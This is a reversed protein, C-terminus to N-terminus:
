YTYLGIVPHILLVQEVSRHGSSSLKEAAADAASHITDAASLSSPMKTQSRHKSGDVERDEQKRRSRVENKRETETVVCLSSDSSSNLSSSVSSINYGGFDTAQSFKRQLQMLYDENSLTDRGVGRGDTLTLEVLSEDVDEVELGGGEGGGGRNDECEVMEDDSCIVVSVVM